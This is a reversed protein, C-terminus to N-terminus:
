VVQKGEPQAPCISTFACNTCEENITALYTPGATVPAIDMLMDHTDGLKEETLEAQPKAIRRGETGPYVLAAGGPQYKKGDGGPRETLTLLFQYASLQPSEEAAKESVAKKGTKFDIVQTLGDEPNTVLLDARGSLTVDIGDETQGVQARLTRESELDFGQDRYSAIYDYLREVGGEWRQVTHTDKWGPGDLVHPLIEKVALQAEGLEMGQVIQEAIAHIFIGVRMPETSESVGGNSDLFTRLACTNWSELKSPSMRIKGGSLVREESSPQAMGWWDEPAAGHVGARAMKALNRAAARREHGPRNEDTVADRLEALLSEIALVRPLAGTTSTAPPQSSAEEIDGTAALETPEVEMEAIFRSPVLAEDGSNQVSTVHVFDTARSIALLFLRREEEIADNIRSVPVSPDINRDLLDVLELQGFLGGVTPGTPWQGEQVGAVVAVKWQRGAAAHAPLIEVAGARVGRQDRGGTPVQQARINDIFSKVKAQPNREAFDGVIDFLSMVADLDADAQAGLSGGKLAQTRLHMDLKTAQWIKWLVMEVSQQGVLAKRGAELVTSVRQLVEQERPGCHSTVWQNEPAEPRNLLETVYDAAQFPAGNDHQRLAQGALQASRIALAVARHVRRVMVPDAGGVSGELLDSMEAVTLDRYSAEAALLLMRVLPQEALVVSTPDVKVPVGYAMLSRRVRAISGTGRVIVAIDDWPVSDEVHARRVVDVIKLREATETPAITVQVSDASMSEAVAAGVTEGAGASRLEVRSPQASLHRRVANVSQAAPPTLRYSASLVVRHDPDQSYSDLFAEDAGRFHFVCQDPDGAILTRTGPAIFSQILRASAPDLNHADDVLLLKVRERQQEVVQAGEPCEFAGLTAHLLESANLSETRSLRQVQQYEELFHGAGEWMPRDHAVGLERLDAASLGRETARLLLDRLQQAFGAYDLAPVVNDPWYRNGDQATGRLIERIQMDHEAGTILRPPKKGRLAQVSRYFAFAWSHVSRVFTGSAAYDGEGAVREYLSARVATAAEKSPAFFMIESASGGQLLFDRAAAILLSTKGTGAGGLIAYPKSYDVRASGEVLAGALGDFHETASFASASEGLRVQPQGSAGLRKELDRNIDRTNQPNKDTNHRDMVRLKDRAGSLRKSLWGRKSLM